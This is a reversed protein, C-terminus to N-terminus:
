SQKPGTSSANRRTRSWMLEKIERSILTVGDVGAILSNLPLALCRPEGGPAQGQRVPTALRLGTGQAARHRPQGARAATVTVGTGVAVQITGPGATVAVAKGAHALGAQIRRGGATIAGRVCVRRTVALPGPLRAPSPPGPGPEACGPAPGWAPRPM